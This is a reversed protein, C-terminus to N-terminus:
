VCAEKNYQDLFSQLRRVQKIFDIRIVVIAFPVTLSFWWMDRFDSFIPVLMLVSLLVFYFWAACFFYVINQQLFLGKSTAVLQNNKEHFHRRVRFLQRYSFEKKLEPYLYLFMQRKDRSTFGLRSVKEFIEDKLVDQYLLQLNDDKLFEIAPLIKDHSEYRHYKYKKYIFFEVFTWNRASNTLIWLIIMILILGLSYQQYQEFISHLDGM